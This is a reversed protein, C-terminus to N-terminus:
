CRAARVRRRQQRSWRDHAALLHRPGLVPHQQGAGRRDTQVIAAMQLYASTGPIFTPQSRIYSATSIAATLPFSLSGALAVPAVNGGVTWTNVTDLTEFTDNLLTTPDMRVNLYGDPRGGVTGATTTISASGISSTGPLLSVSSPLAGPIPHSLTSIRANVTGTAVATSRIRIADAGGVNVFWTQPSALLTYAQDVLGSGDGRVAGCRYWTAGGDDTYEFVGSAGTFTGSISVLCTNYGDISAAVAATSVNTTQTANTFTGTADAALEGGITPWGATVAAATGQGAPIPAGTTGLLNGASDALTVVQQDATGTGLGTLVRVKAGTAPLTEFSDAM